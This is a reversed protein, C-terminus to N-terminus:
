RAAAPPCEGSIRQISTARFTKMHDAAAGAMQGHQDHQGAAGPATTGATGHGQVGTGTTGAPETPAGATPAQGDPRDADTRDTGDADRRVADDRDAGYGAGRTEVYGQVQVRQGVHQTLKDDELGKIKYSAM